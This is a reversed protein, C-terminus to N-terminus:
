QMTRVVQLVGKAGMLKKILSDLQTSSHIEVMINITAVMDKSMRANFTNTSIKFGSIINTIDALLGTRDDATILLEAFYSSSENNQGEWEVDILRDSEGEGIFNKQVNVCDTRHISVGRGRTIYGVIEDGPVPSCCRSMRVLCNDIGKVTIGNSSTRHAPKELAESPLESAIRRRYEDRLKSVIKSAPIGGYGIAAYLDDISAFNHRQLESDIIQQNYLQAYSYGSKRIEKEFFDKGHAINEDRRERKFWQNIKSRASSTKVIKLWDRSPGHVSSSTIINVIDGNQLSYYLPVLRGNVKAGTMRSGIASHIAYAFDIPCSGAPLCIVDGKPTFVFVEDSFMDIKIMRMFEEEDTLDGQLELM